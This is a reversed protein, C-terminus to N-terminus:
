LHAMPMASSKVAACIWDKQCPCNYDLVTNHKKWDRIKYKIV